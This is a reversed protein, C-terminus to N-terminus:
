NWEKDRKFIKDFPLAEDFNTNKKFIPNNNIDM